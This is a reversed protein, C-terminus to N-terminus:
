TWKVVLIRVQHDHSPNWSVDFLVLRNAAHLNIGEAGARTSVLLVNVKSKADSFTNIHEMRKSSSLSGDIVLYGRQHKNRSTDATPNKKATPHRRCRRRPKVTTTATGENVSAEEEDQTTDLFHGVCQLTTVSQSFVVVKDGAQQSERILQLLVVMKGSHAADGPVYTTPLSPEAWAMAARADADIGRKRKKPKPKATSSLVPRWDDVIAVDVDDDEDHDDDPGKDCLLQMRRHVVDPHNVIQLLTAYTTFLDWHKNQHRDRDLFDIYMTHQLPSLQCHVIWEKKVPLHANLLDRGRRLVVPALLATLQTSKAVDGEMIPREYTQRFEDYSALFGPRCFNVMCWYEALSNQLPYGTLVIRKRTAVNELTACLISSPDKIRHGEDLAVLDPGPSCLLSTLQRLQRDILGQKKESVDLVGTGVRSVVEIVPDHVVRSPNLLLRFMEYGMILVGGSAKWDELIQIRSATNSKYSNTTDMQYIPCRELSSPVLWKHFEQVWNLICVTPCLVLATPRTDRSLGDVLFSHITSILQITKGLGMYDALICGQDKSVHQLLFKIGDRQHPKLVDDLESAIWADTATAGDSCVLEVRGYPDTPVVKKAPASPAVMPEEELADGDCLCPLMLCIDCASTTTRFMTRLDDLRKAQQVQAETVCLCPIFGCCCDDPDNM